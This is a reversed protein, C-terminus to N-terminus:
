TTPILLMTGEPLTESELDNLQMVEEVGAVYRKAIDWVKEGTGTFYVTMASKEEMVRPCSEDVEIQTILNIKQSAYVPATISFDVRLEIANTGILTYGCSLIDLTPECRLNETAGNIPYRYEFEVNREIYDANGEENATIMCAILIGSVIMEQEEFRCQCSQLDCWLESIGNVPTELELNKKCHYLEQVSYAIKDFRIPDTKIDAEYKRSYADLLVAIDNECFASAELLLKATFTFMKPAGDTARPKIELFCLGASVDCKCTETVGEMDMIQSFPVTTKLAQPAAMGDAAYLISVTINGKVVIKGNIIKSEEVYPKADYRLLAAIGPQGQGIPIEEEVMLYKEAYGMPVTAPATGHRQEISEDEVDSIIETSRRRIACVKLLAAGHIDMKRATVARCNIYECEARVRVDAGNLDESMELTKSFPYQYEYSYLGGNEGAYLVTVSAAGDVTVNKGSVTKSAVRVAARCKFIKSIDPCFDPLTLDTDIPCEATGSCVTENYTVKTRICKEDM